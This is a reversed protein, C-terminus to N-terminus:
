GCRPRPEKHIAVVVEAWDGEAIAIAYYAGPTPVYSAAGPARYWRVMLGCPDGRSTRPRRGKVQLVFEVYCGPALSGRMQSQCWAMESDPVVLLDHARFFGAVGDKFGKAPLRALAKPDSNYLQRELEKDQVYAVVAPAYAALLVILLRRVHHNANSIRTPLRKFAGRSALRSRRSPIHRMSQAAMMRRTNREFGAFGAKRAIFRFPGTVRM